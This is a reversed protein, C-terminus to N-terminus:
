VLNYDLTQRRNLVRKLAELAKDYDPHRTVEPVYEAYQVIDNWDIIFVARSLLRLEEILVGYARGFSAARHDSLTQLNKIENAGCYRAQAFPLDMSITYIVVDHFKAAEAEFRRTQLDCVETDLSPVVSLLRAKGSSAALEVETMDTALLKFPPAKQGVKIETGCLTLPKGKMTVTRKGNGNSGPRRPKVMDKLIGETRARM